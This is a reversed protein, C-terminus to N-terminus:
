DRYVWEDDNPESCYEAKTNESSTCDDRNLYDMLRYDGCLDDQSMKNSWENVNDRIFHELKNIDWVEPYRHVTKILQCGFTQDDYYAEYSKPYFVGVCQPNGDIYFYPYVGWGNNVADYEIGVYINDKNLRNNLENQVVIQSHIM